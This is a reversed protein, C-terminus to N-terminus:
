ASLELRTTCYNREAKSFAHSHYAIIRERGDQVQSLIGEAAQMSADSDVIYIGENETVKQLNVEEYNKKRVRPFALVSPSSLAIKLAEFASQAELTWDFM